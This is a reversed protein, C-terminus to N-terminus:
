GDLDTALQRMLRAIEQAHLQRLQDMEERIRQLETQHQIVQQRMYLIMQVGATNVGLTTLRRIRRVTEVTEEDWEHDRSAVLQERVWEVLLDTSVGCQHAIRILTELDDLQNEM